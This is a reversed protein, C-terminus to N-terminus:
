DRLFKDPVYQGIATGAVEQGRANLHMDGGAHVFIGVRQVTQVHCAPRSM